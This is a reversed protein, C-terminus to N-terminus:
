RRKRKALSRGIYGSIVMGKGIVHLRVVESCQGDDQLDNSEAFSAAWVLGDEIYGIGFSLPYDARADRFRAGFGGSDKLACMFYELFDSEGAGTQQLAQGSSILEEQFSLGQMTKLCTVNWVGCYKVRYAGAYVTIAVEEKECIPPQEFVAAGVDAGVFMMMFLILVMMM